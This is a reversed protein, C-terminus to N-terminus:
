TVLIRNPFRQIGFPHTQWIFLTDWKFASSPKRLHFSLIYLLQNEHWHNNRPQFPNHTRVGSHSLGRPPLSTIIGVLLLLRQGRGLPETTLTDSEHGSPQSNSVRNLCVTKGAYKRREGRFCTLFLLRHSQFSLQTLVPPLFGPFVHADDVAM